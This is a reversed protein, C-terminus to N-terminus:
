IFAKKSSDVYYKREKKSAKRASIIRIVEQGYKESKYTHAVVMIEDYVRGITVWREENYNHFRVDLWSVAQSDEFIHKALDFDVSHKNKNLKNKREDWIFKILESHNNTYVIIYYM